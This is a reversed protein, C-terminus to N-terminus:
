GIAQGEAYERQVAQEVGDPGFRRRLPVPGIDDAVSALYDEDLNGTGSPLQGAYM